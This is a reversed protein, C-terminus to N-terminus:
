SGMVIVLLRLINNSKRCSLVFPFVKLALSLGILEWMLKFYSFQIKILNELKMRLKEFLMIASELKMKIIFKSNTISHHIDM